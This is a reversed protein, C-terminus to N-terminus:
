LSSVRPWRNEIIEEATGSISALTAGRHLRALFNQV